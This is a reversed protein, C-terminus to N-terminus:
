YLRTVDVYYNEGLQNYAVEAAHIDSFEIVTMSLSIKEGRAEGLLIVLLKFM